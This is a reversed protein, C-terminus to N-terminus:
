RGHSTLPANQSANDSDPPAISIYGHLAGYASSASSGYAPATNARQDLREGSSIAFASTAVSFTVLLASASLLFLKRM